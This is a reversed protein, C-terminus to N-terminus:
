GVLERHHLASAAHAIVVIAATAGFTRGPAVISSSTSSTSCEIRSCPERTGENVVWTKM